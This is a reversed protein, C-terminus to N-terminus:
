GNREGFMSELRNAAMKIDDLLHLNLREVESDGDDFWMDTGALFELSYFNSILPPLPKDSFMRLLALEQEVAERRQELLRTLVPASLDDADRCAKLVHRVSEAIRRHIPDGQDDPLSAFSTKTPPGMPPRGASPKPLPVINPLPLSASSM